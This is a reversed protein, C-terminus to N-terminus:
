NFQLLEPNPNPNPLRYFCRYIAMLTLTLTLTQAKHAALRLQEAAVKGHERELEALLQELRRELDKVKAQEAALAENARRLADASTVAEGELKQVRDNLTVTIKKEEQLAKELAGVRERLATMDLERSSAARRLGAIETAGQEGQEVM